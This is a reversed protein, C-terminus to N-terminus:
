SRRRLQFDAGGSAASAGERAAGVFADFSAQRSPDHCAAGEPRWRVVTFWGQVDPLERERTSIAPVVM